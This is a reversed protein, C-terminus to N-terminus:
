NHLLLKSFLSFYNFVEQYMGAGSSKSLDSSHQKGKESTALSRWLIIYEKFIETVRATYQVHFIHGNWIRFLSKCCFLARHHSRPKTGSNVTM